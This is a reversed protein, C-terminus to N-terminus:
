RTGSVMEGVGSLSMGAAPGTVKRGKLELDASALGLLRLKDTAQKEYKQAAELASAQLKSQPNASVTILLRDIADIRAQLVGDKIMGILEEEVPHEPTGFAANMTDLKVCSFPILYQVICKSRIKAFIKTVHTQLYIDLLYDPRYAEIAAICASYRGNVFLTIARRIHPELELFARFTPSALFTKELTDRNLTALALLGGYVAIDNPSAIDNYVSAPIMPDVDLFSFAADEYREQGLCAIGQAIKIYGHLAKEDESSQGGSLKSVHALIMSWDQKQASVRVLHKAVDIIHKPTSVDPRMKAYSEAAGHIDGTSELHRGMDENGMRISEKVLNNKYTKLEVTLRALETRNRKDTADLWEQDFVADPDQPSAVRLCEVAERYRRTDHGTKAEAIAAKLADICLPVSCRAILFLRDFRTRGRYNQIYLDLDFKPPEKVIVVGQAAMVSFFQLLPDAM